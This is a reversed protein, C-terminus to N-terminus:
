STTVPQQEQAQLSPERHPAQLTAPLRAATRGSCVTGNRNKWMFFSSELHRHQILRRRHVLSPLGMRRLEGFPLVRFNSKRHGKGSALAVVEEALWRDILVLQSEDQTHKLYYDIIAVNRLGDEIVRNAVQVMFEARKRPDKIQRIRRHRRRFAYRFLNCIKRRKDRSLGIVGDARFELGLFRFRHDSTFCPDSGPTSSLALNVEHSPKSRLNLASLEHAICCGAREAAARDSSM